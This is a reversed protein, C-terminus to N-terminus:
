KDAPDGYPDASAPKVNARAGGAGQSAGPDGYPDQSAPRPASHDGYQAQHQGFLGSIQSILASPDFGSQRQQDAHAGISGKVADLLMDLPSPM